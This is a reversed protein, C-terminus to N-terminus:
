CNIRVLVQESLLIMMLDGASWWSFDGDAPVMGVDQLFHRRDRERQGAKNCSQM